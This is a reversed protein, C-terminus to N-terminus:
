RAVVLEGLSGIRVGDLDAHLDFPDILVARLGARQAGLFDSTYTDGVYVAQDARVGLRQLALDFIAKEPKRLGVVHSDLVVKFRPLLGVQALLESLRGDDTNSIVATLLGARQLDDLVRRAEQDLACWLHKEAHLADLRRALEVCLQGDIGLAAYMERFLWFPHATDVPADGSTARDVRHLACRLARHLEVGDARRGLSSAALESLREWDPHVLTGGADFIVARAGDLVPHLWIRMDNRQSVTTPAERNMNWANPQHVSFVAGERM